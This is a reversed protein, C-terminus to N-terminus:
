AGFRRLKSSTRVKGKSWAASPGGPVAEAAFCAPHPADVITSNDAADHMHQAGAAAPNIRRRDVPWALREVVPEDTPSGLANPLANEQCERFSAAWGGADQEVTRHHLRM